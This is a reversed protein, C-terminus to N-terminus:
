YPDYFDYDILSVMEVAKEDCIIADKEKTAAARAWLAILLTEPIGTLVQREM